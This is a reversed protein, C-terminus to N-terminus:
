CCAWARVPRADRGRLVRDGAVDPHPSGPVSPGPRRRRMVSVARPAPPRAALHGGAGGGALGPEGLWRRLVPGRRVGHLGQDWSLHQSRPPGTRPPVPKRPCGKRESVSCGMDTGVGGGAGVRGGCDGRDEEADAEEPGHGADVHRVFGAVGLQEVPPLLVRVDGGAHDRHAERDEGREEERHDGVVQQEQDPGCDGCRVANAREIAVANVTVSSTEPASRPTM